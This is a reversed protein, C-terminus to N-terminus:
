WCKTTKFPFLCMPDSSEFNICGRSYFNDQYCPSASDLNWEVLLALSFPRRLLLLEMDGVRITENVDDNTEDDIHSYLFPGPWGGM